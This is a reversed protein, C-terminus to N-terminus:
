KGSWIKNWMQDTTLKTKKFGNNINEAASKAVVQTFVKYGGNKKTKFVVYESAKNQFTRIKLSFEKKIKTMTYEKLKNVITIPHILTGISAGGDM